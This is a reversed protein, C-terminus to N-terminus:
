ESVIRYTLQHNKYDPNFEAPEEGTGRDVPSDAPMPYYLIAEGALRATPLSNVPHKM